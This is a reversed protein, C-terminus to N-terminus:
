DGRINSLSYSECVNRQRNRTYKIWSHIGILRGMLTCYCKLFPNSKRSIILIIWRLIGPSHSKGIIFGWLLFSVKGFFRIHELILLTENHIANRLALSNFENRKDEDFRQAPFHRVAIAPDYVLKWGMRKFALGISLEWHVQAGKGLLRVDFGRKKLLDSRYACNVGKLFDVERASGAGLHHNGIMRGFWQLKGVIRAEDDIFKGNEFIWDRGGVGGVHDDLMFYPVIKELWDAHPESDDDTIAVIDGSVEMLGKNMAQIVGPININIIKVPAEFRFCELYHLSESDDDRIVVIIEYPKWTQRKIAELCRKLDNLRRYTPILVSVRVGNNM